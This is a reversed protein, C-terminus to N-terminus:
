GEGGMDNAGEVVVAEEFKVLLAADEPTLGSQAKCFDKLHNDRRTPKERDRWAGFEDGQATGNSRIHMAFVMM